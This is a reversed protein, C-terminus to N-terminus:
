MKKEEVKVEVPGSYNKHELVQSPLNFGNGLLLDKVEQIIRSRITIGLYSPSEKKSKLIDVWFLVKLNITFEAIETVVVNSEPQKLVEPQKSLYDKILQIATVVDSPVDLGVVFELRLLGDLTYNIVVNKVIMANPIFIDKGEVNRIHITRMDMAKVVGKHGDVEIIHGIRFPRKAVLLTGALFNEGIDKFAFGLIIATIGAGAMISSVIGTLNLIDLAALLGILYLLWKISNTIFKTVITGEWRSAFRKEFIKNFFHGMLFFILMVIIAAVINPAMEILHDWFELFTQKLKENM